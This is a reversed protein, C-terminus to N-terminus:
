KKGGLLRRFFGGKNNQQPEQQNNPEELELIRTNQNRLSDQLQLITLHLTSNVDKLSDLSSQARKYLKTAEKTSQSSVNILEEFKALLKNSQDLADKLAENEESSNQLELKLLTNSIQEQHYANLLTIQDATLNNNEVLLDHESLLYQRQQRRLSDELTNILEKNAEQELQLTENQETLEERSPGNDCSSLGVINLLAILAYVLFSTKSVGFTNAPQKASHALVANTAYGAHPKQTYNSNPSFAQYTLAPLQATRM